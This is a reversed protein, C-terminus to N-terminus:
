KGKPETRKLSELILHESVGYLSALWPVVDVISPMRDAMGRIESDQRHTLAKGRGKADDRQSRIVDALLPLLDPHLLRGQDLLALLTDVKRGVLATEIAHVYGEDWDIIVPGDFVHRSASEIHVYLVEWDHAKARV